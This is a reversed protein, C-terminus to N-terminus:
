ARNRFFSKIKSFLSAGVQAGELAASIWPLKSQGAPGASKPHRGFLSFATALVATSAAISGAVCVQKKVRQIEAKVTEFDKLLEIRNNESEVLLSRRRSELSKLYPSKRFM